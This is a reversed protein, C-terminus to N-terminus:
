FGLQEDIDDMKSAKAVEQNRQLKYTPLYRYYVQLSLAILSTTYWKDYDGKGGKRTVTGPCEWYGEPSQAKIAMPTFRENWKKWYHGGGHFMAQTCYYWYYAPNSTNNRISWFDDWRIRTKGPNDDCVIHHLIYELGAKAEDCDGAGLLQLCLTGAGQMGDSGVGARTYGFKGPRRSTAHRFTRRRIFEVGRRMATMMGRTEAGAVYGAKLAQYQWASLSLDWRMDKKYSYDFGGEPQQGGVIRALTTEMPAKLLPLKTLGYAEALAYAVIGNVYPETEQSGFVGNCVETETVLFQMARAITKGYKPSQTTEGHALFTLLCLGTMAAHQSPAWSGDANQTRMLWDLAKVVCDESRGWGKGGYKKGMSQRGNGSRGAYLQSIKFSTKNSQVNLVHTFDEAPSSDLWMIEGSEGVQELESSSMEAIPELAQVQTPFVDLRELPNEPPLELEELREIETLESETETQVQVTAVIEIARAPAYFVAMCAIVMVHLVFAVLPGACAERMVRQRHLRLAEAVDQRPKGHPVKTLRLM